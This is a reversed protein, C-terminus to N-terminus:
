PAFRVTRSSGSPGTQSSAAYPAAAPDVGASGLGARGRSRTACRPSAHDLLRKVSGPLQALAACLLPEGPLDRAADMEVEHRRAADRIREHAVLLQADPPDGLAIPLISAVEDQLGLGGGLFAIGEDEVAKVGQGLDPEVPLRDAGGVVHEPRPPPVDGAQDPRARVLERHDESRGDALGGLQIRLSMEVRRGLLEGARRMQALRRAMESPVPSGLERVDAEPLANSDLGPADAPEDVDPDRLRHRAPPGPDRRLQLDFPCGAPRAFQLRHHADLMRVPAALDGSRDHQALTRGGVEGDLDRIRLHPPGVTQAVLREVPDLDLQGSGASREIDPVVLYAQAGEFEPAFGVLGALREGEDDVPDRDEGLSGVPNRRVGERSADRRCLEARQEAGRRVGVVVHDPNPAAAVVLGLGEVVQAVAVADQDPLVEHKGAADVRQGIGVEQGIQRDLDAVLDPPQPM